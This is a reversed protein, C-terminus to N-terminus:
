NMAVKRQTGALKGAYKEVIENIGPVTELLRMADHMSARKAARFVQRMTGPQAGEIEYVMNRYHVYHPTPEGPKTSEEFYRTPARPASLGKRKMADHRKDLAYEVFGELLAEGLPMEGYRTRARIRKMEQKAPQGGHAKEHAEISKLVGPDTKGRLHRSVVEPNYAIVPESGLEQELMSGYVPNSKKVESPDLYWALVSTGRLKEDYLATRAPRPDDNDLLDAVYRTAEDDEVSRDLFRRAAVPSVRDDFLTTTLGSTLGM